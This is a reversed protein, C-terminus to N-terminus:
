KDLHRRRSNQREPARRRDQGDAQRGGGVPLRCRYGSIKEQLRRRHRQDSGRENFYLDHTKAKRGRRRLRQFSAAARRRLRHSANDGTGHGDDLVSCYRQQAYRLGRGIYHSVATQFFATGRDSLEYKLNMIINRRPSTLPSFGKLYLHKAQKLLRRSHRLPM